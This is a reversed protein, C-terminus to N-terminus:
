IPVVSLTFEGGGIRAQRCQECALASWRLKQERHPRHSPAGVTLIAEAPPPAGSRTRSGAAKRRVMIAVAGAPAVPGAVTASLPAPEMVEGARRGVVPMRQAPSDM